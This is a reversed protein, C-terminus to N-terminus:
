PAGIVADALVCGHTHVPHGLLLVPLVELFVKPIQSAPQLRHLIPMLWDASDVNGLVLM